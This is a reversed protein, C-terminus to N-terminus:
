NGLRKAPRWRTHISSPLVSRAILLNDANGSVDPGMPGECPHYNGKWENRWAYSNYKPYPDYPAALLGHSHDANVYSTSPKQVIQQDANIRQPSGAELSFRNNNPSFKRIAPRQFFQQCTYFITTLCFLVSLSALYLRGFRSRGGGQWMM